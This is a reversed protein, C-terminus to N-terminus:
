RKIKPDEQKGSSTAIAAAFSNLWSQKLTRLLSM